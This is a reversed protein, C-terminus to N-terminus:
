VMISNLSVSNKILCRYFINLLQKSKRIVIMTLNYIFYQYKTKFNNTFKEYM